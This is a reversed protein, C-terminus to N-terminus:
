GAAGAIRAANELHQLRRALEPLRAAWGYQQKFRSIDRAPTGWVTQGRRIVKGTPIGCQAGAVCGDELRCHDAIGVQGGVVVGRGLVSSGAIGAQAAILSGQGIQVNHAVHVLNDIKVQEEIRTIALSGRDITTNAGIEVEDGIELRGVQPFKYNRGAETVYGFGDSGLVAGSHVTVRNGLQTGPYLTVRPNLRCDQGIRCSNGIFSFAGISTGKGITAYDEIVAFAEIRVGPAIEASPAVIATAHIGAPQEEAALFIAAQTFSLKPRESFIMTKGAIRLEPRTIVCKAASQAVRELHKASDLYVLDNVGAWEPGAVGTIVVNADGELKLLLYDALDKAIRPKM